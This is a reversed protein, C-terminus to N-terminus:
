TLQITTILPLHDSIHYTNEHRIHSNQIKLNHSTFFHDLTVVPKTYQENNPLLSFWQTMEEDTLNHSPPIIPQFQEYLPTIETPHNYYKQSDPAIREYQGPPLLNFDGGIIWPTGQATLNQLHTMTAAVERQSIDTGRTFAEYHTNMVALERGDTLPLRAELIARKPYFHDVFWGRKPQPLARRVASDIHYKSLIVMKMGAAGIGSPHPIFAAQWYFTQTYAPYKHALAYRLQALQDVYHTRKAGDDMEQLLLIDPDEATIIQAVAQITQNMTEEQPGIDAGGEYFFRYNQNGAMFQVNYSMIKVTQGPELRPTGVEKIVNERQVEKTQLTFTKLWWYGAAAIIALFLAIRRVIKM